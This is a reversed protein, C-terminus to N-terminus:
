GGINAYPAIFIWYVVGWTIGMAVISLFLIVNRKRM